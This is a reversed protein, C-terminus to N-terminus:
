LAPSKKVSKLLLKGDREEAQLGMSKLLSSDALGQREMSAILEQNKDNNETLNRIAFVAWQNLFRSLFLNSAEWSPM